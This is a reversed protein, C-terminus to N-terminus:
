QYRNKLLRDAILLQSYSEKDLRKRVNKLVARKIFHIKSTNSYEILVDNSIRSLISYIFYVDSFNDM